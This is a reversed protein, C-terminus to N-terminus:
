SKYLRLDTLIGFQSSASHELRCRFERLEAPSLQNHVCHCMTVVAYAPGIDLDLHEIIMERHLTWANERPEDTHIIDSLEM